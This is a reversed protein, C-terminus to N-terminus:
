GAFYRSLSGVHIEVPNIETIWLTTFTWAIRFCRLDLRVHLLVNVLTVGTEVVASRLFAISDSSPMATTRTVTTRTGMVVTFVFLILLSPMLLPFAPFPRPTLVHTRHEAKQRTIRQLEIGGSLLSALREVLVFSASSSTSVASGIAPSRPFFTSM